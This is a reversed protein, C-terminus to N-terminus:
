RQKQPFRHIHDLLSSLDDICEDIRLSMVQINMEAKFYSNYNITFSLIFPQFLFYFILLIFSFHSIFGNLFTSNIIFVLQISLQSIDTSDINTLDFTKFFLKFSFLYHNGAILQIDIVQIVLKNSIIIPYFQDGFKLFLDCEEFVLQLHSFIVLIHM